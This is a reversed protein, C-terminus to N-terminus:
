HDLMARTKWRSDLAAARRSIGRGSPTQNGENGVPNTSLKDSPNECERTVSRVELPYLKQLARNVFVAKGKTILKVKAGRVESDKGSILGVVKGMKWNSRKANDEHVLVVEGESVKSLGEEKCRHHERLDTLYEKRWRNWFHIRLRALYRFRRLFGTESEEEDDRVEEPLSLLRRGYILHSPTLMEAGVEDYEYTLPRSNLTAELETLVTLLEDANLKANGLVKRLCRKVSGIMREYFGGWWPARELIFRWDIRNSELHTRVEENDYLRKIVKASAKFTKANDSIILSPTGRRAAFRRLCRLFTTATLDAVLDLHVARTVCCTFLALYSKVMEGTESKIFLPGAFDIGVKSFPTSQRVRFDPLAAMPPSKFPKGQAKMCTVCEKLVRKVAQRGKPVWFRSRLEGLTARIGSHKTKRHCEEIVLKTLKDSRPLIIPQQSEPELDSSELRGKCRLLGDIEVLKLKIALDKYHKDSKLDDQSSRIWMREAEAIESSSLMGKRRETSKATCRSNYLFRKVWSTVRLLRGLRSFKGIEIVTSVGSKTTVGAVAVNVKRQEDASQPTESIESVPWGEKPGSLWAPGRWWLENEKLRSALEGRSGIDAPNQEGPCHAWDEKRTMRLIENVRQRVFQKWEGRNNIWWLATKSDLWQRSGKIEVEEKLANQVTEMLKALVRGSMLELRPITQTKLPAVRTKSTLLTVSFAGYAECVFYIVACYAKRSADAFGHLFCNVQDHPARYVCRAVSIEGVGKLDDIWGVWRKKADNKLEEDWEVKNSCLEQFLVKVSVLVPSVIGLPDYMGAAIKLISRKTVALGDSRKALASLEFIFLDEDCDWSLGLVRENKTGEKRGLMEKAYSEDASKTKDNLKAGDRLECQQIKERLEDSNTLWKRLKFGGLALREKAKDHMESAAQTTKDGTVLDDVYFSRKMIRVFEPDIEAFSDLHYQLTANLLFPSCNVGFVVRCFRYVVPDVQDSDVNNVWLFRLCDRDRFKVEVNLFAKEIDGVLAVRKERFRILIDYLLPSLAPGVHLCDNLSVGGKGEKSSADYVVRIKTTKAENRVVAHHPLYHVKDPTELESVREIIGVEAQEKIIADYANLNEPVSKLREIQGKLRKFSNRYNSPLPAHGEKWPLGVEYRKGNFSIADKLAEHVENEERIGLTEFDWLKRASDELENNDVRSSVRGVFNVNIQMDDRTGKLPGSLVWGLCTEVAVPQDVGGRIIRGGQFCWLYDAGILLDVGLVEEDRSVDSFWLGQLHPYEGKRVEIHENRIQAITPVGYAEIKVGDGGQFPFVQLDYVGKLGSEKTQEGFTCVEIWEQRKVQLGASRVAKSTIFSRHSGADFLVRVRLNGNAGKVVAQATQLAVRGETRVHFTPSTVTERAPLADNGGSKGTHALCANSARDSNLWGTCDGNHARSFQGGNTSDSKYCISVHHKGKCISCTLKSNCDRSIHGKRACVFCRGYKRLLQKREEVSKVITCEHHAHGGKCYACIDNMRALLASATNLEDVRKKKDRDSRTHQSSESKSMTCHEERLELESLLEKLLDEMKWETYNKGRTIQLKVAEPLKGVIAPVVIGEYTSANVELAKLGRHHIEIKDYLRRLGATDRENFVPAVNLLENVHAREIVVPKGFRGRLLEIAVEYNAATLALGAITTRAAGGLLGRLYSFKDVDSLNPNSHISSEYCDWFEQWEDVKGNFRRVELKPLKARVNSNTAVNGSAVPPSQHPSVPSEPKLTLLEALTTTIAKIEGKLNGAIQVEEAIDEDTVGEQEVLGSLIEADLTRLSELQEELSAKLQAMRPRTEATSQGAEILGKAEPLVQSVYARHGGRTKRKTKLADAM